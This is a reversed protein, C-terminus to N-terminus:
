TRDHRRPEEARAPDQPCETGQTLVRVTRDPGARWSRGWSCLARVSVAAACRGRTSRPSLRPGPGVDPRLDAAAVGRRRAPCRRRRGGVSGAALWDATVPEDAEVYALAVAAGLTWGYSAARVYGVVEDDRLLPEAHFLLPGPDALRVQLLRRRPPGAAKRAMVADRGVFGGPKDLALAFGLGVSVPDDTNDIDHGFDRYGKEMRLSGLASLGVPVAGGARLADYVELARAAPVYLEYGLEGVYTIRACLVGVGAVDIERATRFPYADTSLDTDTLAALVERSRPGQLALQARDPTIDTITVDEGGTTSGTPVVARRLWDLAHGHATDSAVVLFRDAALKTVTLDAELLGDENLWQTYTIVGEDGDVAGASVRDLLAGAGPGEVSFKAMFSMDILGVDERVARHEAAWRDFWPARGWTPTAEATRGAGAFWAAGEWGSVERLYGGEDVLRQHVPSLLAGRATRLQKGPPHAAYVTGLIEATRAARYAPALQHPRFRAVDFGTVDM